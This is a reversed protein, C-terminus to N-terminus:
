VTVFACVLGFWVMEGRSLIPDPFSVLTGRREVKRVGGAKKM